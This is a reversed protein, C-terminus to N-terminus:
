THVSYFAKKLDDQNNHLILGGTILPQGARFSQFTFSYAMFDRYFMIHDAGGFNNRLARALKGRVTRNELCQQLGDRDVFEIKLTVTAQISLVRWKKSGDEHTSNQVFAALADYPLTVTEKWGTLQDDCGSCLWSFVISVTGANINRRLVAFSHIDYTVIEQETELRALTSRTVLFERM